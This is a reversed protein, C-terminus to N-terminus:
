SEADLAKKKAASKRPKTYSQYTAHEDALTHIALHTERVMVICGAVLGLVGLSGVLFGLAAMIHFGLPIEMAVLISGVIAAIATGAFMALASYFLRLARLLMHSRRNLNQLQRTYSGEHPDDPGGAAQLGMVVRCRDVVRAIRNATGLSLVSCANTLIAPAVVATLMAFPNNDMDIM